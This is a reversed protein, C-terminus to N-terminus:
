QPAAEGARGFWASDGPKAGLSHRDLCAFALRLHEGAQDIQGVALIVDLARAQDSLIALQAQQLALQSRIEAATM